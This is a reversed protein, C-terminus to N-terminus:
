DRKTAAPTHLLLDFLCCIALLLHRLYGRRQPCQGFHADLFETSTDTPLGQEHPSQVAECHALVPHLLRRRHTCRCRRARRSGRLSLRLDGPGDLFAGVQQQSSSTGGLVLLRVRCLRSSTRARSTATGLFCGGLLRQRGDHLHLAQARACLDHPRRPRWSKTAELHDEFPLAPPACGLLM